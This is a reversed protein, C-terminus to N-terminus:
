VQKNIATAASRNCCFCCCPQHLIYINSVLAETNNQRIFTAREYNFKIKRDIKHKEIPFMQMRSCMACLQVLIILYINLEIYNTKTPWKRRTMGNTPASTSSM